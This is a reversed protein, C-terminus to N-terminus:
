HGSSLKLGILGAVILVASLIRAATLAEGLFVIGFIFAGIAGIGTWVAYATGLPLQKMAMALLVFSGLATIITFVSPGLRTFGESSKLGAAWAVELLGAIFLLIWSM